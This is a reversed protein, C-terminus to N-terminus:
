SSIEDLTNQLYNIKGRTQKHVINIDKNVNNKLSNILSDLDYVM